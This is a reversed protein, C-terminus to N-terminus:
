AQTCRLVPNSEETSYPVIVANYYWLSDVM